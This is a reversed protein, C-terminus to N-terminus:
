AQAQRAGGPRGYTIHHHYVQEGLTPFPAAPEHTLPIQSVTVELSPLEELEVATQNAAQIRWHLKEKLYPLVEEPEYSSLGSGKAIASNLHVFGESYADTQNRCNSCQSAASNVFAYHAGVFADGVRWQLPDDPVDGLFILVSFSRGLEHKKFHIRVTYDHIVVQSEKGGHGPDHPTHASGGGGGGGGGGQSRFSHTIEGAASASKASSVAETNVSTDATPVPADGASSRALLRFGGRGPLPISGGDYKQKVISEIATKVANPNGLDLNNFEPYTYHLDSTRTTGSSKWFLKEPHWFPELDTNANVEANPLINFSGRHDFKGTTVWIGPNLAAWLSLLRDVNCHHLYFIPDFAAVAPDSM